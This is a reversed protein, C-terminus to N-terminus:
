TGAQLLLVRDRHRELLLRPLDDWPHEVAGPAPELAEDLRPPRGADRGTDWPTDQVVEPPRGDPVELARADRARRGHLHNPVLGLADVSPVRDHVFRHESLARLLQRDVALSYAASLDDVRPSLRLGGYARRAMGRCVRAGEAM